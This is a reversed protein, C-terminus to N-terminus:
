SLLLQSFCSPIEFLISSASKNTHSDRRLLNLNVTSFGNLSVLLLQLLLSYCARSVYSSARSSGAQRISLSLGRCFVHFARIQLEKQQQLMQINIWFVRWLRRRRCRRPQQQTPPHSSSINRSSSNSYAANIEKRKKQFAFFFPFSTFFDNRSPFKPM